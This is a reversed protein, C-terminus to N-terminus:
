VQVLVDVTEELLQGLTAFHMEKLLCGLGPAVARKYSEIEEDEGALERM